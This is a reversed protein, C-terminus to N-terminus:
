NAVVDKKSDTGPEAAIVLAVYDNLHGLRQQFITSPLIHHVRQQCTPLLEKLLIAALDLTGESM